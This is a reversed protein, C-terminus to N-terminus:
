QQQQDKLFFHYYCQLKLLNAGMHVPLQQVETRSESYINNLLHNQLIQEYTAQKCVLTPKPLM